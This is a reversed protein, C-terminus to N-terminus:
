LNHTPRTSPTIIDDDMMAEFERRTADAVAEMDFSDSNEESEDSEEDSDSEEFLDEETQISVGATLWTAAHLDSEQMVPKDRQLVSQKTAHRRAMFDEFEKIESQTDISKDLSFLHDIVTYVYGFCIKINSDTMPCLVKFLPNMGIEDKLYSAKLTCEYQVGWNFQSDQVANIPNSEKSSSFLEVDTFMQDKFLANLNVKMDFPKIYKPKKGKAEREKNVQERKTEYARMLKSCEARKEEIRDNPINYVVSMQINEDVIRLIYKHNAVKRDVIVPFISSLLNIWNYCCNASKFKYVRFLLHVAIALNFISPKFPLVQSCRALETCRRFFQSLSPKSLIVFAFQLPISGTEVTMLNELISRESKINIHLTEPVLNWRLTKDVFTSAELKVDDLNMVELIKGVHPWTNIDRFYQNLLVSLQQLRVTRDRSQLQETLLIRLDLSLVEPFVVVNKTMDKKSLIEKKFDEYGEEGPQIYVKIGEDDLSYFGTTDKGKQGNDVTFTEADVTSMEPEKDESLMQRIQKARSKELKAQPGLAFQNVILLSEDDLIIQRFSSTDEPSAKLKRLAESRDTSIASTISNEHWFFVHLLQCSSKSATNPLRIKEIIVKREQLLDNNDVVEKPCEMKKLVDIVSQMYVSQRMRETEEHLYIILSGKVWKLLPSRPTYDPKFERETLLDAKHYMVRSEPTPATRVLGQGKVNSVRIGFAESNRMMHKSSEFLCLMNVFQYHSAHTVVATRLSMCWKLVELELLSILSDNKRSVSIVLQGFVFVGVANGHECSMTFKGDVFPEGTPKFILSLDSRRSESTIQNPNVVLNALCTVRAREKQNKLSKTELLLQSSISEPGMMDIMEKEKFWDDCQDKTNGEMMIEPKTYSPNWLLFKFLAETKRSSSIPLENILSICELIRYYTESYASSYDSEEDIETHRGEVMGYGVITSLSDDWKVTVPRFAHFGTMTLGGSIISRTLSVLGGVVSKIKEPDKLEGEEIKNLVMVLIPYFSLLAAKDQELTSYSVGIPKVNTLILNDIAYAMVVAANNSLKFFTEKSFLRTKSVTIDRVDMTTKVNGSEIKLLKIRNHTSLQAILLSLHSTFKDLVLKDIALMSHEPVIRLGQCKTLVSPDFEKPRDSSTDSVVTLTMAKDLWDRYKVKPADETSELKSSVINRDTTKCWHDSLGLTAKDLFFYSNLFMKYYPLSLEKTGGALGSIINRSNVIQRLRKVESPYNETACNREILEKAIYAKPDQIMDAEEEYMESVSAKVLKLRTLILRLRDPVTVTFPDEFNGSEKHLSEVKFQKEIGTSKMFEYSSLIAGYVRATGICLLLDDETGTKEQYAQSSILQYYGKDKVSNYIMGLVTNDTEHFHLLSPPQYGKPGSMSKVDVRTPITDRLRVEYDRQLQTLGSHTKLGTLDPVDKQQKIVLMPDVTAAKIHVSSVDYEESSEPIPSQSSGREGNMSQEPTDGESSQPEPYVRAVEESKINEEIWRSTHELRDEPKISEPLMLKTTEPLSPLTVKELTSLSILYGIYVLCDELEELNHSNTLLKSMEPTYLRGFSSPLKFLIPGYRRILNECHNFFVQQRSLCFILNTLFSASMFMAQQACVHMSQYLTLPSSITSNIITSIIFKIVSPSIRWYLDFESYVENVCSSVVSKDSVYMQCCRMVGIMFSLCDKFEADVLAETEQLLTSQVRGTIRFIKTFDDSSGAHTIDLTLTPFSRRFKRTLLVEILTSVVFNLVSSTAHHIGQGMHNYSNLASVGKSIYNKILFGVFPKHVWLEETKLLIKSINSSKMRTMKLESENHYMMTRLIKEISAVPIEIEKILSKLMVIMEFNTWDKIDTLLQQYMSSFFSTCHIPGWKTNDGAICYTRDFMVFEWREGPVQVQKGHNQKSQLKYDNSKDLILEKLKPNVLIDSTTNDLVSKAFLESTANLLKTDTEQVLLDRDGGLQAKPALTSFNRHSQDLAVKFGQQQLIIQRSGEVKKILEYLVKSRVSRPLRDNSSKGLLRKAALFNGSRIVFISLMFDINVTEIDFAAIVNRIAALIQSHENINRIEENSYMHRFPLDNSTFVTTCYKIVMENDVENIGLFSATHAEYKMVLKILEIYTPNALDQKSSSSLNLSNIAMMENTTLSHGWPSCLVHVMLFNITKVINQSHREFFSTEQKYLDLEELTYTASSFQQKNKKLQLYSSWLDRLDNVMLTMDNPGPIPVRLHECAQKTTEGWIDYSEAIEKLLSEETFDIFGKRGNILEKISLISPNSTIKPGKSLATRLDKSLSKIWYYTLNADQSLLTESIPKKILNTWSVYDLNTSSKVVEVTRKALGEMLGNSGTMCEVFYNLLAEKEEKTNATRSHDIRHKLLKMMKKTQQRKLIDLATSLNITGLPDSIISTTEVADTIGTWNRGSRRAKELAGMNLTKKSCETAIQLLEVSGYTYKPFEELIKNIDRILQRKSPTYYVETGTPRTIAQGSTSDDRVLELGTSLRFTFSRASRTYYSSSESMTGEALQVSTSKPTEASDCTSKDSSEMSSSAGSGSQTSSGGSSRRSRAASDQSDQDQASDLSSRTTHQASSSETGTKSTKSADVASKINLAPVGLLLRLNQKSDSRMKKDRTSNYLRISEQVKTEWAFHRDGFEELVRISGADFDDLEKNFIHVLYIDFSFARDSVIPFGVLSISVLSTKPYHQREKWESINESIKHLSRACCAQLYLRSVEQEIRRRPASLKKGLARPFGFESLALMYPYRMCQIQKNFAQNNLAITPGLLTSFTVNFSALLTPFVEQISCREITLKLSKFEEFIYNVEDIDGLKMNIILKKTMEAIRPAAKEYLIKTQTLDTLIGPIVNHIQILQTLCVIYCYILSQGLVAQRRNLFFSSRGIDEFAPGRVCCLMNSSKKEPVKVVLNLPTHPILKVKIGSHQFESCLQLFIMCIKSYMILEQFWEFHLLISLLGDLFPLVEKYVKDEFRRKIETIVEEFYICDRQFILSDEDLWRILELKRDLYQELEIVEINPMTDDKVKLAAREFITSTMNRVFNLNDREVKLCTLISDVWDIDLCCYPKSDTLIDDKFSKITKKHHDSYDNGMFNIITDCDRKIVKVMAIQKRNLGLSEMNSTQTTTLEEEENIQELERIRSKKVLSKFTTDFVELNRQIHRFNPNIYIQGKSDKFAAWKNLRMTQDAVKKMLHKIRRQKQTKGPLSLSTFEDFATKTSNRREIDGIENYEIKDTTDKRLNLYIESVKSPDVTRLTLLDSFYKNRDTEHVITADCETCLIGSSLRNCIQKLLVSDGCHKANLKINELCSMCMNHTADELVWGLIFETSVDMDTTSKIAMPSREVLSVIAGSHDILHEIYSDMEMEPNDKDLTCGRVLSQELDRMVCDPVVAGTPRVQIEKRWKNYYDQIHVKLVPPRVITGKRIFLRLKQSSIDGVIHESVDLPSNKSLLRFLTTVTRKLVSVYQPKIWWRDPDQATKDVASIVFVRIDLSKLISIVPRWKALDSVIKGEQDTQYGVELLLLEYRDLCEKYHVPEWSRFLRSTVQMRLLDEKGQDTLFKEDKDVRYEVPDVPEGQKPVDDKKKETKDQTAAEDSLKDEEDEGAGDDDSCPSEPRSLEQPPLGEEAPDDEVNFDETIIGGHSQHTKGHQILQDVLIIPRDSKAQILEDSGLEHWKENVGRSILVTSVASEVSEGSRSRTTSLADSGTRSKGKRSGSAITSEYADEQDRVFINKEARLLVDEIGISLKPVKVLAFDPKFERVEPHSSTRALFDTTKNPMTHRMISILNNKLDEPVYKINWSQAFFAEYMLGKLRLAISWAQNFNSCVQLQTCLSVYESKVESPLHVAANLFEREVSKVVAQVPMSGSDRAMEVIRERLEELTLRDTQSFKPDDAKLMLLNFIYNMLATLGKLGQIGGVISVRKVLGKQDFFTSIISTISPNEVTSYISIWQTIASNLLVTGRNCVVIYADWRYTDSMTDMYGPLVVDAPGPRDWNRANRLGRKYQRLIDGFRKQTNTTLDEKIINYIEVVDEATQELEDITLDSRKTIELVDSLQEQLSEMRRRKDKLKTIQTVISNVCNRIDQVEESLSEASAIPPTPSETFKIYDTYSTFRIDNMIFSTEATTLSSFKRIVNGLQRGITLNNVKQILHVLSEDTSGTIHPLLAKSVEPGFFSTAMDIRTESTLDLKFLVMCCKLANLSAILLLQPHILACFKTMPQNPLLQTSIFVENLTSMILSSFSLELSKLQGPSYGSILKLFQILDLVRDLTDSILPDTTVTVTAITGENNLMIALRGNFAGHLIYGVRHGVLTPRSRHSPLSM